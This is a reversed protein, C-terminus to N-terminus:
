HEGALMLADDLKEETSAGGLHSRLLELDLQYLVNEDTGLTLHTAYAGSGDVDIRTFGSGTVGRFLGADSARVDVQYATATAVWVPVGGLAGGSVHHTHGALIMVVDRGEVVAALREPERLTILNIVDIPGPIPPHHFAVITGLPAPVALQEDLWLLQEDDFEGHHGDTATSDLGIIRLGDIWLVQDSKREADDDDFLEARFAGREDHNGPLYMVPVGTRESFADVLSRLRRYAEPEGQDALDGTLLVADFRGSEELTALIENLIAFSDVKGHLSGEAVIHLDSLQIIVKSESM